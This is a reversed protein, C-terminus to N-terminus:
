RKGVKRARPKAKPKEAARELHEVRLFARALLGDLQRQENRASQALERVARLDSEVAKMHRGLYANSPGDGFIVRIGNASTQVARELKELRRLVETRKEDERWIARLFDDGRPNGSVPECFYVPYVFREWGPAPTTATFPTNRQRWGSCVRCAMGNGHKWVCDGRVCTDRWPFIPVEHFPVYPKREPAEARIRNIFGLRERWRRFMGNADQVTLFGDSGLLGRGADMGWERVPNPPPLAALRMQFSDCGTCRYRDQTAGREDLAWTHVHPEPKAKPEWSRTCAWGYMSWVYVATAGCATCTTDRPQDIRGAVVPGAVGGCLGCVNISPEPLPKPTDAEDDELRELTLEMRGTFVHTSRSLVYYRGDGADNGGSITIVPPRDDPTAKEAKRQRLLKRARLITRTTEFASNDSGSDEYAAAWSNACAPNADFHCAYHPHYYARDWHTPNAGGCICCRTESGFVEGCEVEHMAAALAKDAAGGYWLGGNGRASFEVDDILRIKRARWQPNGRVAEPENWGSHEWCEHDELVRALRAVRDDHATM